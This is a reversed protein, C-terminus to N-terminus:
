LRQKVRAVIEDVLEDIEPEHAGDGSRHYTPAQAEGDHWGGFRDGRNTTNNDAASAAPQPRAPPAPQPTHQALPTSAGYAPRAGPAACAIQQTNIGYFGRLGQLEQLQNESFPQAGGLMRAYIMIEANHELKELRKFAESLCPGVTVSGHRALMLADSKAILDRMSEPLADTSPAAYPAIPVDGMTVVVEPLMCTDLPAGAITFAIAKPPHAHIVAKVDPRQQYAELHVKYETSPKRDGAVLNGEMDIVIPADIHMDEKRLGSPTILVHQDDLRVSLNGDTATVLGAAHTKHSYYVIDKRAQLENPFM